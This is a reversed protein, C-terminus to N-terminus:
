SSQGTSRKSYHDPLDRAAVNSTSDERIVSAARTWHLSKIGRKSDEVGLVSESVTREFAEDSVRKLLPSVAANAAWAM